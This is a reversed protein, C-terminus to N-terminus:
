GALRPLKVAFRDARLDQLQVSNGATRTEGSWQFVVQQHIEADVGGAGSLCMKRTTEGTVPFGSAYDRM